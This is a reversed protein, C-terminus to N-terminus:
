FMKTQIRHRQALLVALSPNILLYHLHLQLFLSVRDRLVFAVTSLTFQQSKEIM